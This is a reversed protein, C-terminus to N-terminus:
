IHAAAAVRSFPENEGEKHSSRIYANRGQKKRVVWSNQAKKRKGERDRTRKERVPSRDSKSVHWAPPGLGLTSSFSLSVSSSFFFFDLCPSFSLSLLTSVVLVRTQTRRTPTYIQIQVLSIGSSAISSWRLQSSYGTREIARSTSITSIKVSPSFYKDIKGKGDSERKSAWGARHKSELTWTLAFSFRRFSGRWRCIVRAFRLSKVIHGADRLDGRKRLVLGM